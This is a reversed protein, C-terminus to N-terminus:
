RAARARGMLENVQGELVGIRRIGEDHRQQIILYKQEQFERERSADGKTYRDQQAMTFATLLNELKNNQTTAFVIFAVAQLILFALVGISIEHSFRLFGVNITARRDRGRYSSDVSVRETDGNDEPLEAPKM